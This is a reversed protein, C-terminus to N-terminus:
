ATKAAALFDELPLRNRWDPDIHRARIVGDQGVLFSASLPIFWSSGAQDASPDIGLERYVAAIRDSLFIVLNLSLAYGNDVDCVVEITADKADGIFQGPREPTVGVMTVGARRAADQARDHAKKTEVCFPCWRGRFFSIIVPGTALYGSLSGVGGAGTPLAFDPLVDGVKPARAGVKGDRLEQIFMDVADMLAPSSQRIVAHVAALKAALTPYHSLDPLEFDSM